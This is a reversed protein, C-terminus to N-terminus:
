RSLKYVARSENGRKDKLIILLEFNGAPIKDNVPIIFLDNKQDYEMIVWKSNVEARYIDIGSLEDTGKIMLKEINTIKRGDKFNVPDIKPAVTDLAILYDGFVSTKSKIYQSSIEGGISVLDNLGEYRVIVAKGRIKEPVSDLRISINYAKHVPVFKNHISHKASFHNVPNRSIKYDFILNDYFSFAPFDLIIDNTEFHNPKKYDFFNNNGASMKESVAKNAPAGSIVFKLSVANNSFDRVRIEVKHFGKDNFTLIGRDRVNKYVSLMNGPSIRLLQYRDNSHMYESYDIMDNVYRSEDFAFSDLKYAFYIGSDMYMEVSYPSTSNNGSVFDNTMIGFYCSGVARITDQFNNDSTNKSKEFLYSVPIDSGNVSDGPGKPYIRLSNIVPPLLDAAYIGLIAPNIPWESKEHRIEFHLHPGTSSGSNGSYGVIDGKKMRFLAPNPFLEIEFSEKECQKRAIYDEVVVNFESLHAYVSVFRNPHTIYIVRGYGNPSVKIRSVYGDAVAYVNLGTKDGTGFDIGSHLHDRRIEGFTGTIDHSIDLPSRFYNLPLKEQAKLLCPFLCCFLLIQFKNNSMDKECFFGRLLLKNFLLL